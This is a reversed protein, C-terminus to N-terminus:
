SMFRFLIDLAILFALIPITGPGRHFFMLYVKILIVTEVNGQQIAKFLQESKPIKGQINAMAKENRKFRDQRRAYCKAYASGWSSGNDASDPACTYIM